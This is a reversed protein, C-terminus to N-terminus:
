ESDGLTEVIYRAAERPAEYHILHGVDPVVRVRAPPDFRKALAYQDRVSTIDDRDSVILTTRSRIASAYEGVDHSVSARFSDLVVGRDAFASFYRDHQDHIWARLARDHTKAMAASMIRVIGPNRLLAFGVPEPLRAAAAYYGVALMTLLRRPGSLAPAGIPNILILDSCALGRAVAASCLISGFSHGLLVTDADLELTRTLEVLWAAYGDVDHPEGHLRASEGFGPLDPVLVRCGNLYRAIPELGHHDGRFGHIALITRSSGTRSHGAQGYEAGGYEWVLTRTGAVDVTLRRPSGVAGEDHTESPVVM